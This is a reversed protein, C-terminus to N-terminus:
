GAVQRFRKSSKPTAEGLVVDDPHFAEILREVGRTVHRTWKKKGMRKLGRLGVHDEYTEKQYSLHGLEMPVVTHEVVLASGLGTGLGVFLLTGGQIAEWPKCPRTM